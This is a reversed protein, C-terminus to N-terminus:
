VIGLFWLYFEDLMRPIFTFRGATIGAFSGPASFVLGRRIVAFAPLHNDKLLLGGGDSANGHRYLFDLGLYHSNL